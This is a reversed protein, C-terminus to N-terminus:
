KGTFMSRFGCEGGAVQRGGFWFSLASTGFFAFEAFIALIALVYAMSAVSTICAHQDKHIRRLVHPGQALSAWLRANQLALHVREHVVAAHGRQLGASRLAAMNSAVGSLVILPVCSVVVLGVSWCYYVGLGVGFVLTGVARIMTAFYEAVLLKVKTVDTSLLQGLRLLSHDPSDFWEAEQRLMTWFLQERLRLTLRDGSLTAMAHRLFNSLLNVVGLGLFMFFFDLM